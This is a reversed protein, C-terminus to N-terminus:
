TSIVPGSGTGATSQSSSFCQSGGYYALVYFMDDAINLASGPITFSVECVYHGVVAESTGLRTLNDIDYGGIFEVTGIDVWLNTADIGYPAHIQCTVTVPAGVTPTIDINGIWSIGTTNTTYDYVEIVKGNTGSPSNSNYYCISNANYVAEIFWAGNYPFAGNPITLTINGATPTGSALVVVDSGNSGYLIVTGASPAPLNTPSIVVTVATTSYQCVNAAIKSITTTTVDGNVQMVQANSTSGTYQAAGSYVAQINWPGFGSFSTFNSVLITLSAVGNLVNATSLIKGYSIPETGQTAYLSVTGVSPTGIVSAVYSTVSINPSACTISSPVATMSTITSGQIINVSTSASAVSACSNGGYNAQLSYTGQSSLSSGSITFSAQGGSITGSGLYYLIGYYGGYFAVTGTPSGYTSNVDVEVLMNTGLPSQGSPSVFAVSSTNTSSNYVTVHNSSTSSSSMYCSGDTYSASLSWTGIASFTNSPVNITLYGTSPTGSGLNITAGSLSNTASLTVTGSSPNALGSAVVSIGVSLLSSICIASASVSAISTTTSVQVIQTAPASSGGPSSSSGYCTGALYNAQIRWVGVGLESTPVNESILGNIPTGSFLTVVNSGQTAIVSVIGISPNAAGVSNTISVAIPISVTSCNVIAPLSSTITTTTPIVPANISISQSTSPGFIVSGTTGDYKAVVSLPGSAIFTGDFVKHGNSFILPGSALKTQTNSDFIEVNGTPLPLNIVDTTTNAVQATFHITEGCYYPAVETILLTTSTDYVTFRDMIMMGRALPM